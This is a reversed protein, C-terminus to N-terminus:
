KGNKGALLRYGDLKAEYTWQQGIPLERVESIFMPEIFRPKAAPLAHLEKTTMGPTYILSVPSFRRQLHVFCPPLHVGQRYLRM